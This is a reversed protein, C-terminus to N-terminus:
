KERRVRTSAGHENTLTYSGLAGRRIKVHNGSRITLAKPSVQRWVQQNDLTFVMKNHLRRGVAEVRATIEDISDRQGPPPASQLMREEGFEMAQVAALQKPDLFLGDYCNLRAFPNTLSTCRDVERGLSPSPLLATCVLLVCNVGKSKM